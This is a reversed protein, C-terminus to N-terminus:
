WFIDLWTSHVTWSSYFINLTTRRPSAPTPLDEMKKRRFSFTNPSDRWGVTPISLQEFTTFISPWLMVTLIFNSSSQVHFTMCTYRSVCRGVQHNHLLSTIKSSWRIYIEQYSEKDTWFTKLRPYQPPPSIWFWWWSSSGYCARLATPRCSHRGRTEVSDLGTPLPSNVIHEM